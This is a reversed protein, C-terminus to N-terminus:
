ENLPAAYFMLPLSPRPKTSVQLLCVHFATDSLPLGTNFIKPKAKM